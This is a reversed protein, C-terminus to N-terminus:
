ILIGNDNAIKNEKKLKEYKELNRYKLIKGDSGIIACKPIRGFIRAGIGIIAGEEIHTGPAIIVNMGIWVNDEIVVRKYIFTNDYPILEGQYNHSQTYLLLNRSIVVNNGIELGGAARIFANEGIFINKGFKINEINAIRVKYGFKIFNDSKIQKNLYRTQAKIHWKKYKNSISELLRYLSM